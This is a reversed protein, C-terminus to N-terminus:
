DTVQSFGKYLVRYIYDNGLIIIVMLSYKIHALLKVNMAENILDFIAKPQDLCSM